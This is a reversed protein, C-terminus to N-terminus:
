KQGNNGNNGSVGSVGNVGNAGTVGTTPSAPAKSIGKEKSDYRTVIKPQVKNYKNKDVPPPAIYLGSYM